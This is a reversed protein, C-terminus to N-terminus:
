HSTKDVSDMFTLTNSTRRCLKLAGMIWISAILPLRDLEDQKYNVM